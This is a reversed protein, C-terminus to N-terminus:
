EIMLLSKGELGFISVILDESQVWYIGKGSFPNDKCNPDVIKLKNKDFGAIVVGHGEIQGKIPDNFKGIEVSKSKKYLFPSALEAIIPINRSLYKIFLDLSITDFKIQGNERLYELYDDIVSQNYEDVFKRREELNKILSVNDLKFWAPDFIYINNTIILPNFGHKKAFVGAKPISMGREPIELSKLIEEQSVQKKYYGFVQQLCAPICSFNIEQNFQPIELDKKSM